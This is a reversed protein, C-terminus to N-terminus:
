GQIASLKWYKFCLTDSQNVGQGAAYMHGLNFQADQNGQDAALTYYKCAKTDSQEVGTGNAYGNGVNFQAGVIQVIPVELSM